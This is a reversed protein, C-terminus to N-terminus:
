RPEVIESEALGDRVKTLAPTNAEGVQSLLWTEPGVVGDAKRKFRRQLEAVRAAFAPGYRRANAPGADVRAMRTALLTVGAGSYSRGFVVPIAPPHRWLAYFSGSWLSALEAAGLVRPGNANAIVLKDNSIGTLLWLEAKGQLIVPMNLARLLNVDGQLRLCHVQQHVVDRCNQAEGVFSEPLQYRALLGQWAFASHEQATRLQRVSSLAQIPEAIPTVSTQRNLAYGLTFAALVAAGLAAFGLWRAHRAPLVERAAAGVLSWNVTARGRAYSALLARDSLVNLLRPVGGTLKHLRALAARTFLPRSAGAVGLRHAVYAQSEGRNLPMLHYRATIRQSVQRLDERALLQNLEPQGLLIIQMLKQTPTELNTLLRVQELSARSLNQAEDLMLVVRRGAAHEALLHGTLLDTLQKQSGRQDTLPLKLEECITELLELADLHPNLILAVGTQAPLQELSLRCLTTKGTGVEGTLLVFGGSGHQGFGYLLHALGERHRESLYVFRPDPTISFPAERLGFHQLYM